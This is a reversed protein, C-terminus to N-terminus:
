SPTSSPPQALTSVSWRTDGVPPQAVCEEHTSTPLLRPHFLLTKDDVQGTAGAALRAADGALIAGAQRVVQVPKANLCSFAPCVRMWREAISHRVAEVAGLGGASLHTWSVGDGLCCVSPDLDITLQADSTSGTDFCAGERCDHRLRVPVGGLAIAAHILDTLAPGWRTHASTWHSGELISRYGIREQLSPSVILCEVIVANTRGHHIQAPLPDSCALTHLAKGVRDACNCWTVLGPVISGSVDGTRPQPTGQM